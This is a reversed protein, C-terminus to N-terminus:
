PIRVWTGSAYAWLDTYSTAVGADFLNGAHLVVRGRTADFAMVHACRRGPGATAIARWQQGDWIWTDDLAGPPQREGLGGYLVAVAAHRDFAMQHQYRPPPGQDSSKRWARGDWTWTDRFKDGRQGIGGFLLVHRRVSDYALAIHARGGPGPVALRHWRVGDWEWTDANLVDAPGAGGFLVARGREDDYAMAHHDRPGPGAGDVEYWRVGDWEWTDGLREGTTLRIGGHLVIRQRRTDYAAAGLERAPPGGTSARNWGTAKWYWVEQRGSERSPVLLALQRSGAMWLM